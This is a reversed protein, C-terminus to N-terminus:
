EINIIANGINTRIFNNIYSRVESEFSKNIKSNDLISSILNKMRNCVVNEMTSFSNFIEKRKQKGIPKMMEDDYEQRKKHWERFFRFISGTGAAAYSDMVAIRIKRVVDGTLDFIQSKNLFFSMDNDGVASEKIEYEPRYMSIISNLEKRLCELEKCLLLKLTNKQVLIVNVQTMVDEVNCYFQFLSMDEDSEKFSEMVSAIQDWYLKTLAFSVIKEFNSLMPSIEVSKAKAYLEEIMKRSLADARGLMAIGRSITLSPNDPDVKVVDSSLGYEECIIESIFEMRSAGGTLFVGKIEKGAIHNNKFDALDERIKTKYGIQEELTDNLADLNEYEVIVFEKKISDYDPCDRSVITRLMFSNDISATKSTKKYSDEKAKRAEFLLAAEYQPHRTLLKQVGACPAIKDNFIAKDILSAGHPYGYDIPKHDGAIYTFDLTSSGLDFVIAGEAIENKFAIKPDNLAYFIAARSESTLGGLPLGARLAMQMYLEKTKEDQWGSPRAIYVIHNYDTLESSISRIKEYVAKMFTTMLTEAEGDISHPPEKFCVRISANDQLQEAGFANEGIQPKEGDIQSIASVIVKENGTNAPNIRVDSVAVNSLGASQEWDIECIAASTEGHGFDIGVVFKHQQPNPIILKAM